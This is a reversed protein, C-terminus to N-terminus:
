LLLIKHAKTKTIKLVNQDLFHLSDQHLSQKQDFNKPFM